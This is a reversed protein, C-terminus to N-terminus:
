MPVEPPRRHVRPPRSVFKCADWDAGPGEWTLMVVYGTGCLGSGRCMTCEPRNDCWEVCATRNMESSRETLDITATGPSQELAGPVRDSVRDPAQIREIANDAPIGSLEAGFAPAMILLLLFVGPIIPIGYQINSRNM